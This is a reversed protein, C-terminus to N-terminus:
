AKVTVKVWDCRLSFIQCHMHKPHKCWHDVTVTVKSLQQLSDLRHVEVSQLGALKVTRSM